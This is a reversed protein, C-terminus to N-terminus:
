DELCNQAVGTEDTYTCELLIREPDATAKPEISINVNAYIAYIVTYIKAGDSYILTTNDFDVSEDGDTYDGLSCMPEDMYKSFAESYTYDGCDINVSIDFDNRDIATATSYMAQLDLKGEIDDAFLGLSVPSTTGDEAKLNNLFSDIKNINEQQTAADDTSEALYIDKGVEIVKILSTKALTLYKEDAHLSALETDLILTEPHIGATTFESEATIATAKYLSDGVTVSYYPVNIVEIQQEITQSLYYADSGYNYASFYSLVSATGLASIQIQKAMTSTLSFNEGYNAVYNQDTFSEALADSAAVLRTSMEFFLGSIDETSGTAEKLMVESANLSADIIKPLFETYDNSSDTIDIRAQVRPDNLIEFISIIAKLSKIDNNNSDDEADLIAHVGALFNQIDLQEFDGVAHIENIVQDIAKSHYGKSDGLSEEIHKQAAELTVAELGTIDFIAQYFTEENSTLLSATLGSADFATIDIGNEPDGDADITQLLSAIKIAQEDDEAIDFPTVIPAEISMNAISGLSFDGIKFTCTDGLQYNFKGEVDTVGTTDGCEYNIGAVASDIFTGQYTETVVDALDDEIIDESSSDSGGCASLFSIAAAVAALKFLKKYSM